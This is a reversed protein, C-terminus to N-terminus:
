LSLDRIYSDSIWKPFPIVTVGLTTEIYIYMRTVDIPQMFAAAKQMLLKVDKSFQLHAVDGYEMIIPLMDKSELYNELAWSKPNSKDGLYIHQIRVPLRGKSVIQLRMSVDGTQMDMQASDSVELRERSQEVLDKRSLLATAVAALAGIGSVWGGLASFAPWFIDKFEQADFQAGTAAGAAFSFIAIVAAAVGGVLVGYNM